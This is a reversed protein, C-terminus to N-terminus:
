ELVKRLEKLTRYLKNKVNSETISLAAAIEPITLGVDYMLYFAKRVTDPKSKLFQRANELIISNIAFDETCFSDAELETAGAAEGDDSTAVSSVFMGLRTWLSYHRALKRRAIRMVLALEHTVYDVGRKQLLSYLEMYTDQFIDGIDATNACRATIFALVAKSTSDYIEDFRIALNADPMM